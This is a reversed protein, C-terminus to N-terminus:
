NTKLQIQNMWKKISNKFEEQKNNLRNQMELHDQINLKILNKRIERRNKLQIILLVVALIAPVILISFMALIMIFWTSYYWRDKYLAFM